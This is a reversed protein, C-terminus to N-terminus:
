VLLSALAVLLACLSVALSRRAQVRGQQQLTELALRHDDALTDLVVAVQRLSASASEARAVPLAEFHGTLLLTHRALTVRLQQVALPSLRDDLSANM